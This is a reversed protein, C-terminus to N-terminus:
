KKLYRKCNPNIKGAESYSIAVAQKPSSFRGKKYESMNIDIKKKLLAKCKSPSNRTRSKLSISKKIISKRIYKVKPSQSRTASHRPYIRHISSM